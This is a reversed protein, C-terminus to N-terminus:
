VCIGAGQAANAIIKCALQISILLIGLDGKSNKYKQQETQIWRVLTFPDHSPTSM